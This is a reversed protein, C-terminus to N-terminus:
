RLMPEAWTAWDYVYSGDADVTLSILVTKGVYESLDVEAPHWGDPSTVKQRYLEKGNAEVIFIVGDSQSGDRLGVAFSLTIPKKDPLQLLYEVATRGQNPPHANIGRREVGNSKAMGPQAGVHQIPGTAATGNVTVSLGFPEAALDLPLAATKPEKWLLIAKGPMTMDIGYHFLGDKKELLQCAMEPDPGVATAKEKTAALRVHVRRPPAELRVCPEGWCAWDFSPNNAPGPTTIFAISVKKGRWKDLPISASKWESKAWVEDFVKESDVEVIFQVGDSRGDVGHRLGISFELHALGDAPLGVTFRGFTRAPEPGKAKVKWPPHAFIAQKLVNGVNVHSVQFDGGHNLEGTQGEVVIGAQAEDIHEIFDYSGEALRGELAVSFKTDDNAFVRVVADDPAQIIHTVNQKRPTPLYVYTANPDLGFIKEHDYAYWDAISGPGTVASQGRVFRYVLEEKGQATRVMRSSGHAERVYDVRVGKDGKLEFKTGPAWQSEFDPNLADTVWVRAENFLCQVIAGGAEIQEASPRSYTPIVGWNEYARKWGLYLGQNSPNCMGLYGYITTYPALFYSSIPHGCAIFGEDWTGFVHNVAHSAHRQAFAEYQCTVEDLGEGSLAVNPMAERLQKHLLINGQPAYLGDVKGGPHNYMCLTQDLHIADFGYQRQVEVLRKTLDDRWAKSGPHIYAFKITPETDPKMRQLPPIWWQLEKKHPDRFQWEKFQEYAPNKPDCGFYNMHPMVHYGLGMAYKVFEGFEEHATYDPYNKDYGDKRWNPIYLLTVSPPIRRKLADLVDKQMGMIVLFRIDKAWAPQQKELRTLGWTKEMWDRYRRAPVRWDGKHFALRWEVSEATTLDDFPAYNHSQFGLTVEGKSRRWQLAKFRMERDESWVSFGGGTGEVVMMQVEWGTPWGFHLDRAPCKSDLSVGSYGPVLTRVRKADLGAIGWQVGYLNKKNTTGSQRILIDQTAPDVAVTMKMEHGQSLLATIAAEDEGTKACTVKAQEDVWAPDNWWLLGTLGRDGPETAYTEGTLTNTMKVIVGRAIEIRGKETTVAVRDDKVEVDASAPWCATLVSFMLVIIGIRKM